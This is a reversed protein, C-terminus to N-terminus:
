ETPSEESGELVAIRNELEIIKQEMTAVKALETELQEVRSQLSSVYDNYIWGRITEESYINKDVYEKTVYGNNIDGTDDYTYYYKEPDIENEPIDNYATQSLVEIIPIEEDLAVVKGNHLLKNNETTLVSESLLEKQIITEEGQEVEKEEIKQITLSQTKTINTELEKTTFYDAEAEKDRTYENYTIFFYDDDEMGPRKLDSKLVYDSEVTSQFQNFSEQTSYTTSAIEKTLFKEDAQEVSYTLALTAYNNQLDSTNTYNNLLNNSLETISNSLKTVDGTNAKNSLQDVISDGWESTLYTGDGEEPIYYYVDKRLYDGEGKPTYDELNTNELLKKYDDQSCTIISIGSAKWGTPSTIQSPDLLMYINGNDPNAVTMGKYASNRPLTYLDQESDVVTRNDLPQPVMIEFSTRLLADGTYSYGM